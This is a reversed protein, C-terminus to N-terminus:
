VPGRGDALSATQPTRAAFRCLIVIAAPGNVLAPMGVAYEGTILSWAGWVAANNLVIWYTASVTWISGTCSGLGASGLAPLVTCRREM